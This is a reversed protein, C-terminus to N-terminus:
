AKRKNTAQVAEQSPPPQLGYVIRENINKPFPLSHVWKHLHFNPIEMTYDRWTNTDSCLLGSTVLLQGPTPIDHRYLIFRCMEASGDSVSRSAMHYCLARFLICMREIDMTSKNSVFNDFTYSVETSDQTPLFPTGIMRCSTWLDLATASQLRFQYPADASRKLYFTGASGAQMLGILNTCDLVGKTHPIYNTALFPIPLSESDIRKYVLISPSYQSDEFFGSKRGFQVKGDSVAFYDIDLARRHDAYNVTFGAGDLTCLRYDTFGHTSAFVIDTKPEDADQFLNVHLVGSQLAFVDGDRTITM